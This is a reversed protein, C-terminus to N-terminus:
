MVSVGFGVSLGLWSSAGAGSRSGLMIGAAYDPGCPSPPNGAGFNQQATATVVVEILISNGGGVDIAEKDLREIQVLQGIRHLV